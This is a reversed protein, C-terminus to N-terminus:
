PTDDAEQRLAALAKRAADQEAEKKSKGQGTAQLIGPVAVCSEFIKDHDPGSEGSLTYRPIERFRQQCFEQLDTKYDRYTVHSGGEEILPSFVRRIFEYARDFGGDLYVAATVAEFADALISAKSRGGSSEEGRGLLLFAGLCFKRSLEALSQENVVSARLRSLQGEADDPFSKILLDSICLEIVADGLFELRQNDARCSSAAENLYSRHVLANDLLEPNRFSYSLLQELTKLALLREDTM